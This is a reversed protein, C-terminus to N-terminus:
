DSTEHMSSTHEKLYAPCRTWSGGTGTHQLLRRYDLLGKVALRSLAEALIRHKLSSDQTAVYLTFSFIALRKFVFGREDHYRPSDNGCMLMLVRWKVTETVAHKIPIAVIDGCVMKKLKDSALQQAMNDTMEPSVIPEKDQMSQLGFISEHSSDMVGVIGPAFMAAVIDLLTSKGTNTDGVVFPMVDFSDFKGVPYFLHGILGRLYIYVDASEDPDGTELQYYFIRYFLPTNLDDFQLM